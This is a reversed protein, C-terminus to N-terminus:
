FSQLSITHHKRGYEEKLKQFQSKVSALVLNDTSMLVADEANDSYYRPRKGIVRFGYKRYLAQAIENSARVELTVVAANSKIALSITSILLAEGLGEKRHQDRVAISIIHADRAILWLGAFGAIYQPEHKDEPPLRNRRFLGQFFPIKPMTSQHLDPPLKNITYAVLYYALPNRFERQYSSLSRFMWESPFVERDVEAMQLIDSEKMPRIAYNLDPM